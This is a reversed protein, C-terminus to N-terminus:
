LWSHRWCAPLTAKAGKQPFGEKETKLSGASTLANKETSGLYTYCTDFLTGGGEQFADVMTNITEWDLEEGQKPLRLFGFGLKNIMNMGEYNGNLTKIM